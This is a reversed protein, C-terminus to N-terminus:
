RCVCPNGLQPNMGGMHPPVHHESAAAAMMVAMRAAVAFLAWRLWSSTGAALAPSLGCSRCRLMSSQCPAAALLVLPAAATM